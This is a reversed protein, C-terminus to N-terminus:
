IVFYNPPESVISSYLFNVVVNMRKNTAEMV